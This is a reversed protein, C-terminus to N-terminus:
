FVDGSEVSQYGRERGKAGGGALVVHVKGVRGGGKGVGEVGLNRAKVFREAGLRLPDARQFRSQLLSPCPHALQALSQLAHPRAHFPPFPALRFPLPPSPPPQAHQPRAAAGQKGDEDDKKEDAM